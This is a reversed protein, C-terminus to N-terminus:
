RKALAEVLSPVLKEWNEGQGIRHITFGPFWPSRAESVGWRWEAPNRMLVRASRGAIGARLHTNTNSVAVYEDILSLAAVADLLDENVRNLDLAERGLADSFRRLEEAPPRRQLIVIRADMSRFVSGLMEPPIHKVMYFGQEPKPEDPLVGARWTVGIYPPPGFKRLRAELQSRRLPDVPLALPSAIAQGCALPLDGAAITIDAETGNSFTEVEDFLEPMMGFLPQLKPSCMVTLRHGRARLLPAFRCFFLEDGLGQEGVIRIRKPASLTAVARADDIIQPFRERLRQRDPRWRYANWGEDLRGMALLASAEFLKAEHLAGDGRQEAIRGALQFAELGEAHRGRYWLAAGLWQSFLVSGADFAIGARCVAELEEFRREKRLLEVLRERADRSRPEEVLLQKLEGIADAVRGAACHVSALNFRADSLDPELELARRYRTEADDYRGFDGFLDGLAVQINAETWGPRLRLVRSIAENARKADGSQGHIEAALMHVEPLDPRSQLLKRCARQAEQLRGAMLLEVAASLAAPPAKPTM